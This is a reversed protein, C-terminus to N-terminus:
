SGRAIVLQDDVETVGDVSLALKELRKKEAKDGVAGWLHAVGRIVKVNVGRSGAQIAVRVRAALQTDADEAPRATEPPRVAAPAAAAPAAPKPPATDRAKEDCGGLAVGSLIAGQLVFRRWNSSLPM